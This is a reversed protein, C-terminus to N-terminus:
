KATLIKGTLGRGQLQVMAPEWGLASGKKPLASRGILDGPDRTSAVGDTDLRASIILDQGALTVDFNGAYEPTLHDPAKLEFSFPFDLPWAFRAAAIPPLKSMTNASALRATIYLASNPPPEVSGSPLKVTGRALLVADRPADAHVRAVGGVLGAPATALLSRRSLAGALPRAATSTLVLALSALFHPGSWAIPQRSMTASRRFLGALIDEHSAIVLTSYLLTRISTSLTLHYEYLM